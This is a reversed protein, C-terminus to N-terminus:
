DFTTSRSVQEWTSLEEGVRILRARINEVADGGLVLRMPPM